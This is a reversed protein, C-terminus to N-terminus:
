ICSADIFLGTFPIATTAARWILYQTYRAYLCPTYICAFHITSSVYNHDRFILQAMKSAAPISTDPHDMGGFLFASFFFFVFALSCVCFCCGELSFDRYAGKFLSSDVFSFLSFIHTRCLYIFICSFIRRVIMSISNYVSISM